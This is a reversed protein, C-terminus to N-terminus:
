HFLKDAAISGIPIAAPRLMKREAKQLINLGIINSVQQRKRLICILIIALICISNFINIALSILGYISANVLSDKYNPKGLSNERLIADLAKSKSIQDDNIAKQISQIVGSRGIHEHWKNQISHFYQLTISGIFLLLCCLGLSADQTFGFMIYLGTPPSATQIARAPSGQEQRDERPKRGPSHQKAGRARIRAKLAALQKACAKRPECRM